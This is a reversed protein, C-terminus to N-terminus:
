RRCARILQATPQVIPQAVSQKAQAKATTNLASAERAKRFADALSVSVKDELKWSDHSADFRGCPADRDTPSSPCAALAHSARRPAPWTCALRLHPAPSTCTYALTHAPACGLWRIHAVASPRVCAQQM